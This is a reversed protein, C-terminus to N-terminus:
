LSLKLIYNILCNDLCGGEWDRFPARLLISLITMLMMMLLTWQRFLLPLTYIGIDM